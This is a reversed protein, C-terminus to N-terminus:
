QSANRWSTLQKGISNMLVTL